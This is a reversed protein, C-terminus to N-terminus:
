HISRSDSTSSEPAWPAGCGLAVALVEKGGTDASEVLGWLIASSDGPATSKVIVALVVVLPQNATRHCQRLPLRQDAVCDAHSAGLTLRVRVRWVDTRARFASCLKGSLSVM